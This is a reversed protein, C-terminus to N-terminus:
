EGATEDKPMRKVLEAEHARYFAQAVARTAETEAGWLMSMTERFDVKPDLMLALAAEYRKPDRVAALAGIMEHRKRRDKEQAIERRVQAGYEPNADVAINLVTARVSAPLDRWHAALEVARKVLEPDRGQWAAASVLAERTEEADLDDTPRADFGLKAAG